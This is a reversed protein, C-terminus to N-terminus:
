DSSGIKIPKTEVLIDKDNYILERKNETIKLIYIQDLNHINARDINKFGRWLRTQNFALKYNKYLLLLL